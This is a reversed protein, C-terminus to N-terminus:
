FHHGELDDLIDLVLFDHRAEIKLVLIKSGWNRNKVDNTQLRFIITACDLEDSKLRQKAIDYLCPRHKFIVSFLLM